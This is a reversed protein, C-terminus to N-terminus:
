YIGDAENIERRWEPYDCRVGFDADNTKVAASDSLSQTGIPTNIGHVGIFIAIHTV